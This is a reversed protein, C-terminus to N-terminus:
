TLLAVGGLLAVGQALCICVVVNWEMAGMPEKLCTLRHPGYRAMTYHLFVKLGVEFTEYDIVYDIPDWKRPDLVRKQDRHGCSVRM